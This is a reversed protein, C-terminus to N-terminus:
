KKCTPSVRVSPDAATYCARDAFDKRNKNYEALDIPLPFKKPETGKGTGTFNFTFAYAAAGGSARRQLRVSRLLRGARRRPQPQLQQLPQPFASM